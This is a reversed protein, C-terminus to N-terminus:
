AISKQKKPLENAILLCSLMTFGVTGLEAGYARTALFSSVILVFSAILLFRVLNKNVTFFAFLFAGTTAAAMFIRIVNHTAKHNWLMFDFRDCAYYISAIVSFLALLLYGFRNNHAETKRPMSVQYFTFFSVGLAIMSPLWNRPVGNQPDANVQSFLFNLGMMALLVCGTVSAIFRILENREVHWRFRLINKKGYRSESAYIGYLMLAVIFSLSGYIESGEEIILLYLPRQWQSIDSAANMSNIELSEQFPNSLYFVLGVILLTLSGPAHRVRVVSFFLMFLGIVAVLVYFIVWGGNNDAMMSDGGNSVRFSDGIHEHISGLEDFSLLLFSFAFILWGFSILHQTGHKFRRSDLSFCLISLIACIFLLTSSYWVAANNESSLDFQYRILQVHHDSPSRTINVAATGLLLLFNWVLM